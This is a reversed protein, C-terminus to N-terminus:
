KEKTIKSIGNTKDVSIINDFSNLKVAERHSIVYVNQNYLVNFERLIKFIERVALDDLNGDIYEDLLLINSNIGSRNMIFDRFAFSIAISLRMKEGSSFSGYETEGNSTIFQYNLDKDFMCTYDAGMSALYTQIQKNLMKILDSVVLRRINDEGVVKEIFNLINKNEVCKDIQGQTKQLDEKKKNLLETIVPDDSSGDLERKIILLRTDIESLRRKKSEVEEKINKLKNLNNKIKEDVVLKGINKILKKLKEREEIINSALSKAQEKVDDLGLKKSVIPKSHESIENYTDIYKKVYNIKDEYEKKLINTILQKKNTIQVDLSERKSKVGNIFETISQIGSEIKDIDIKETSLLIQGKETNLETQENELKEIKESKNIDREKQGSEIDTIDGRQTYAVREVATLEKENELNDKHINRYMEGFIKLDFINEIFVRKDQKTMSFFSYAQDSTLIFSRLFVEFDTRLINKEIYNRTERSSHKTLENEKSISNKYLKCYSKFPSVSVGSVIVFPKDDAKFYLIVETNRVPLQRNSIRKLSVQNLMKGFLAFTFANILSSKGCGNKSGPIDNNIGTILSIGKNSDFDFQEKDFCM